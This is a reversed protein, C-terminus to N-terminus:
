VQKLLTIYHLEEEEESSDSSSELVELNDSSGITNLVESAIIWSSMEFIQRSLRPSFSDM